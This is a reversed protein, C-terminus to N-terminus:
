VFADAHANEGTTAPAQSAVLSDIFLTAALLDAAGGPSARRAALDRDLDALAARGAASTVGGHAMVRAAGRQMADLGARGARHLVCTDDLVAMLALLAALRSANEDAGRDRAAYLAPLAHHRIPMFGNVAIGRAGAVGYRAIVRQGHSGPSVAGAADPIAALTAADDALREACWAHPPCAAAATVLLGLAWIAGRHTNVGGTAVLMAAEADRGIRGIATRLAVPGSAQRAAEAMAVFGPELTSISARMTACTMDRHAGASRQDVLGPKPTLELEAILAASVRQGLWVAGPASGRRCTDIAQGTM